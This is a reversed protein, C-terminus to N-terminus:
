LKEASSQEAIIPVDEVNLENVKNNNVATAINYSSKLNPPEFKTQRVTIEHDM